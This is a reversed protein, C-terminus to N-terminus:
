AGAAATTASSSPSAMPAVPLPPFHRPNVGFDGVSAGIEQVLGCGGDTCRASVMAM